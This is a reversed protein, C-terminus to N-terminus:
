NNANRKREKQDWAYEYIDEFEREVAPGEDHAWDSVRDYIQEGASRVIYALPLQDAEMLEDDIRDLEMLIRVIQELNPRRM